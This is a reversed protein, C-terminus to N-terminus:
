RPNFPRRHLTIVQDRERLVRFPEAEAAHASNVGFLNFSTLIDLARRSQWKHFADVGWGAGIGIGVIVGGLLLSARLSIAGAVIFFSYISFIGLTFVLAMVYGPALGGNLLAGAVAVDFGIPVPLFTGVLSTMFLLLFGFPVDRLLDNPLLTAVVAGLFGALLMLPVTTYVIFWLNKVYDIAFRWAAQVPGERAPPAAPNPLSCRVRDADAVQLERAPLFRCLVPVVLLIVLLSLAIKTVAM